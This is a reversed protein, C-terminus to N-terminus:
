TLLYPVLERLVKQKGLKLLRHLAFYATALSVGLQKHPKAGVQFM